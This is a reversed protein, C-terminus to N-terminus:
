DGAVRIVELECLWTLVRAEYRPEIVVTTGNFAPRALLTEFCVPSTVTALDLVCRSRRSYM